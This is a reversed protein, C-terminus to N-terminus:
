NPQIQYYIINAKILYITELLHFLLCVFLVFNELSIILVSPMFGLDLHEVIVFELM